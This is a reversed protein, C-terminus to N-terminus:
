IAMCRGHLLTGTDELWYWDISVYVVKGFDGILVGIDPGFEVRVKVKFGGSNISLVHVRSNLM